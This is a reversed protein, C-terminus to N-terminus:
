VLFIDGMVDIQWPLLYDLAELSQKNVPLALSLAELVANTALLSPHIKLELARKEREAKMHELKKKSVEAWSRSKGILPKRIYQAEPLKEAKAIMQNLIERHEHKVNRPAKPMLAIDMGRNEGSWKAINILIESNMVKFSPRDKRKAETDRWHWLEKLITLAIGQLNKSGKIQWASEPNEKEDKSLQITRILKQCTEHHWRLRGLAILEDKMKDAITKLYHTDNAAYTLLEQDLPRVSWDARQAGKPLVVGCHKLALDGLGKKEYSLFQAAIMTDFIDSPVFGYTKKLIRLDFDAGHLILPKDALLSVLSGLESLALPDIVLDEDPTSIQVLCLKEIYHHLSDAETDIAIWPSAKVLASIATLSLPQNIYRM